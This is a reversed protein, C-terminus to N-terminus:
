EVVVKKYGVIVANVIRNSDPYLIRIINGMYGSGLSKATTNVTVSGVRVTVNVIDNFRVLKRKRTNSLTFFSGKRINTSAVTGIISPLSVLIGRSIHTVKKFSIDTPTIIQNYRIDVRAVPVLQTTHQTANIGINRFLKHHRMVYIDIYVFGNLNKLNHLKLSYRGYPLAIPMNQEFSLHKLGTLKLVDERTILFAKRKITVYSSGCIRINDIGRNRLIAQIYAKSVKLSHNPLPSLLIPQKSISQPCKQTIDSLLVRYHTVVAYHKLVISCGFAPTGLIAASAYLIILLKFCRIAQKFLEQM